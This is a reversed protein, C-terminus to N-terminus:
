CLFTDCYVVRRLLREDLQAAHEEITACSCHCAVARTTLELLSLPGSLDTEPMNSTFVVSDNGEDVKLLEDAMDSVGNLM